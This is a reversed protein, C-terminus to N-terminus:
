IKAFYITKRAGTNYLYYKYEKGNVIITGQYSVSTDSTTYDTATPTLGLDSPVAVYWSKTSDGGVARGNMKTISTSLTSINANEDRYKNMWTNNPISSYDPVITVTPDSSLNTPKTQGIYWYYKNAVTLTIANNTVASYGNSNVVQIIGAPITISSSTKNTLTCTAGNSSMTVGAPLSRGNVVSWTYTGEPLPKTNKQFILNISKDNAGPYSATVTTEYTKVAVGGEAFTGTLTIANNTVSGYSIGVYGKDATPATTDNPTITVSSGTTSSLKFTQGSTGANTISWTTNDSTGNSVTSSIITAGDIVMQEGSPTLTIVPPEIPVTTDIYLKGGQVQIDLSNSGIYEQLLAFFREKSVMQQIWTLLESTTNITVPDDQALNTSDAGTVEAGNWAIEIANVLKSTEDGDELDWFQNQGDFITGAVSGSKIPRTTPINSYNIINNGDLKM